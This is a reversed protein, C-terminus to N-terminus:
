TEKKASIVRITGDGDKHYRVDTYGGNKRLLRAALKEQGEGIEFVLIGAPKLISLSDAILRRIIDIGYPGADLAVLPEHDIIEPSLNALSGTPIYPPNCVVLDIESEYGL